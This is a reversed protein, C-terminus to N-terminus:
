RGIKELVGTIVTPKFTKENVLNINKCLYIVHPCPLWDVIPYMEIQNFFEGMKEYFSQENWYWMDFERTMVVDLWWTFAIKPFPHTTV